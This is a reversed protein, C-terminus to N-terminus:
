YLCCSLLDHVLLHPPVAAMDHPIHGHSNSPMAASTCLGELVHHLMAGLAYERTLMNIRM